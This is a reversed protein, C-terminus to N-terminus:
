TLSLTGYCPFSTLNYSVQVTSEMASTAKTALVHLAVWPTQVPPVQIAIITQMSANM